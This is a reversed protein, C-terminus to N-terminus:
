GWVGYELVKKLFDSNGGSKTSFVTEFYHLSTEPVEVMDGSGNLRVLTESPENPWNLHLKIFLPADATAQQGGQQFPEHRLDVATGTSDNIFRSGTATFFYGGRVAGVSDDEYLKQIANFFSVKKYKFLNHNTPLAGGFMSVLLSIFKDSPTESQQMTRPDILFVRMSGDRSIIMKHFGTMLVRKKLKLFNQFTKGAASLLQEDPNTYYYGAITESFILHFNGEGDTTVNSLRVPVEQAEYSEEDLFNESDIVLERQPLGQVIRILDECVDQQDCSDIMVFKHGFNILYSIYKERLNILLTPDAACDIELAKKLNKWHYSERLCSDTPAIERYLGHLQRLMHKETAANYIELLQLEEVKIQPNKNILSLVKDSQM